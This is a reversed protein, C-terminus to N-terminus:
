PVACSDGSGADTKGAQRDDKVECQPCVETEIGCPEGNHFGFHDRAHKALPHGAKVIGTMGCKCKIHVGGRKVEDDFSKLENECKECYGAPIRESDELERSKGGALRRQCKPCKGKTSSGIVNADCNPCTIVKNKNGLLILERGEGGCRICITMRPNIGLKPHLVIDGKAM